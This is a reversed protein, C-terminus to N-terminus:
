FFLLFDFLSRPSHGNPYEGRRGEGTLAKSFSLMISGEDQEITGKSDNPHLQKRGWQLRKEREDKIDLSGNVANTVVIYAFACLFSM